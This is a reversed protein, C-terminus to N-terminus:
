FLRSEIREVEARSVQPQATIIQVEVQTPIFPLSDAPLHKFYERVEAPTANVHSAIGEKVQSIMYGERQQTKWFERMQSLKRHMVAELAERSGYVQIYENVQEDVAAIIDSESVSVSDLEAQHLFLKNVALQEPITCYPNDIPTGHMEMSIRTEEVESLLIPSDGVVWIVEDVVNKQATASLACLGLASLFLRINM